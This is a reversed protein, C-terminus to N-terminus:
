SLRQMRCFRKIQYDVKNQDVQETLSLKLMAILGWVYERERERERERVCACVGKESIFIIMHLQMLAHILTDTLAVKQM